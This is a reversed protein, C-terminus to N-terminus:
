KIEENQLESNTKIIRKKLNFIDALIIFGIFFNCIIFEQIKGQDIELIKFLITITWIIFLNLNFVAAFMYFFNNKLNKSKVKNFIFIRLLLTITGIVIGFVLSYSYLILTGLGHFLGPEELIYYFFLSLTWVNIVIFSLAVNKFLQQKMPNEKLSAVLTKYSHRTATNRVEDRDGPLFKIRPVGTEFTVNM